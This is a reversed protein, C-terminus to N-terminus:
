FASLIINTIFLLISLIITGSSLLIGWLRPNMANHQSYPKLSRSQFFSLIIIVYVLIILITLLWLYNGPLSEMLWLFFSLGIHIRIAPRISHYHLTIYALYWGVFFSPIAQMVVSQALMYLFASGLIGFYRDYHGLQRQIIGRFMYEYCIPMLIVNRLLYLINKIVTNVSNYNGLYSYDPTNTRFFFYFLTSISLATLHIGIAFSTLSLKKAFSMPIKKWYDRIPLHLSRASITFLGFTILLLILTTSLLLIYDFDLDPVSTELLPRAYSIGHQLVTVLLIYLALPAGFRNIQGKAQKVTIVEPQKISM